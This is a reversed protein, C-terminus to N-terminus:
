GTDMVIYGSPSEDPDIPELTIWIRPYDRRSVGTLMEISGANAFTGASIHIPGRSFWVQYVSGPPAPELGAIEFRLRTGASENWGAVSGTVEQANPGASLAVEWDPQASRRSAIVASAGVVGVIVAAVALRRATKTVARLRTSSSGGEILTVVRNELDLSPEEWVADLTLADKTTELQTDISRCEPCSDLHDLHVRSVEGTLFAARADDCKM